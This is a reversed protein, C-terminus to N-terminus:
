SCGRGRWPRTSDGPATFEQWPVWRGDPCHFGWRRIRPGTIFLTVAPCSMLEIRHALWPGRFVWDGKWRIVQKKATIERYEGFRVYSLSPWPHDHLARDDDDRMFVHLYVNFFPNRPILHWRLLYPDTKDGIVMDPPRQPIIGTVIRLTDIQSTM